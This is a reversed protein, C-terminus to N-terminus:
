ITMLNICKGFDQKACVPDKGNCEIEIGINKNSEDFVCSGTKCEWCRLPLVKFLFRNYNLNRRMM